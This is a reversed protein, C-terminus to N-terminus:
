ARKLCGEECAWGASAEASQAHEAASLRGLFLAKAALAVAAWSYAVLSAACICGLQSQLAVRLLDSGLRRAASADIGPADGSRPIPTRTRSPFTLAPPALLLM